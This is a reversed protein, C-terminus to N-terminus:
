RTEGLARTRTDPHDHVPVGKLRLRLAQWYIAAIIKGTMFPHALLFLALSGAGLTQRAMDLRADFVREGGEHSEMEIVLREGLSGFRWVYGQDMPMFPSIHFRKDLRLELLEGRGQAEALDLVYAHRENWPTNTIEAVLACPRREADHCVYFSVPNFCYGLCRLQTLLVVSGEPRWGLEDQVRDRVAEDLPTQPDGLYDERRFSMLNPRGVSWLWRGAFVRSLEDLDLAFMGLRYGFVHREPRHRAHSVRGRYLASRM